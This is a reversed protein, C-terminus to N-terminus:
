GRSWSVLFREPWVREVSARELGAERALGRLEEGRWAARVSRPGDVHTVRARSLLRLGAWALALGSASRRLDELHLARTRGALERLLAIVDDDPLHHLFLSSVALDFDGGPLEELVDAERWDIEVGAADARARAFDLATPSLDLAVVDVPRRRSRGWRAAELALDGGGCAVDLLRLPRGPDPLADLRHRLRRGTLSLRHVRGLARLAHRHHDGDLAPDDMLEPERRRVRLGGPGANPVSAPPAVPM